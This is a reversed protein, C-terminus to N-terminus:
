NRKELDDLIKKDFTTTIPQSFRVNIEEVKQTHAVHVLDAIIWGIITLFITVTIILLEKQSM